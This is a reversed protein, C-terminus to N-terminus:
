GRDVVHRPLRAKDALFLGGIIAYVACSCTVVSCDDFSAKVAVDIAPFFVLDLMQLNVHISIAGHGWVQFACDLSARNRLRQEVGKQLVGPGVVHFIHADLAILIVVQNSYFDGVALTNYCSWSTVSVTPAVCASPEDLKWGLHEICEIFICFM